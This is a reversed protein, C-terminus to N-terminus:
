ALKITGLEGRYLKGDTGKVTQQPEGGKGCSLCNITKKGLLVDKNAEQLEMIAYHLKNIATQFTEFDSAMRILNRDLTGIKFEHNNFDNRVQDENAKKEVVKYLSHVDLDARFKVLKQDWVKAQDVLQRQITEVEEKIMFKTKEFLLEENPLLQMLEDKSVKDSTIKEIDDKNVKEELIQKIYDIQSQYFTIQEDYHM